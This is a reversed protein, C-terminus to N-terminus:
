SIKERNRRDLETEEQAFAEREFELNSTGPRRSAIRELQDRLHAAFVSSRFTVLDYHGGPMELLVFNSSMQHWPKGDFGCSFVLIPAQLPAPVYRELVEEYQRASEPNGTMDPIIQTAIEEVNDVRAQKELRPWPRGAGTWVPDIMAVVQVDHGSAVLLRATELAVMGGVCHGGLRFPGHPQFDLIQSLREAAMDELSHPISEGKMGHPAVAVLPQEPGLSRAFDKLYFGGNTWDGHFFFLPCQGMTESVQYVVKRQVEPSRSFIDALKRITSAEFLLSDPISIGLRRETLLVMEGALLSDGGKEFFDDDITLDNSELLAKWIELLAVHLHDEPMVSANSTMIIQRRAKPTTSHRDTREAVSRSLSKLAPDQVLAVPTSLFKRRDDKTVTILFFLQLACIYATLQQIVAPHGV